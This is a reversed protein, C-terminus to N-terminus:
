WTRTRRSPSARRMLAVFDEAALGLADRAAARAQPGVRRFRDPDIGNPIVVVREREIGLQDVLLREISRSHAIILDSRAALRRELWRYGRGMDDLHISTM